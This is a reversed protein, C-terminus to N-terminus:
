KQLRMVVVIPVDDGDRTLAAMRGGRIVPAPRALLRGPAVVRGLYKGGADFVDLPSTRASQAAPQVWLHDGDDFFFSNLAPYTDPIRSPDVKGGQREFWEYSKLVRDRDARSVRIPRSEREVALTPSGDFARRELRYRDTVAVWVRGRPDVSWIQAGSFPVNVETVRRNRSTGGNIAFTE